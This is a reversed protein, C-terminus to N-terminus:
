TKIHRDRPMTEITKQRPVSLNLNWIIAHTSLKPNPELVSKISHSTRVQVCVSKEVDGARQENEM